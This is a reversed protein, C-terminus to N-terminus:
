RVSRRVRTDLIISCAHVPNGNKLRVKRYLRVRAHTSRGIPSNTVNRCLKAAAAMESDSQLARNTCRAIFLRSNHLFRVTCRLRNTTATHVGRLKNKATAHNFQAAPAEFSERRKASSIYSVRLFFLALIAQFLKV